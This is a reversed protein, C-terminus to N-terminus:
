TGNSGKVQRGSVNKFAFPTVLCAFRIFYDLLGCDSSVLEKNILCFGELCSCSLSTM